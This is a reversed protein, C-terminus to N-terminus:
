LCYLPVKPPLLTVRLHCLPYTTSSSDGILLKMNNSSRGERNKLIYSSISFVYADQLLVVTITRAEGSIYKHYENHQILSDLMVNIFPLLHGDHRLAKVKTNFLVSEFNTYIQYNTDDVFASINPLWQIVNERCHGDQIFVYISFMWIYYYATREKYIEVAMLSPMCFM